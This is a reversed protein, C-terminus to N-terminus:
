PRSRRKRGRRSKSRLDLPEDVGEEGGEARMSAAPAAKEEKKKLLHAIMAALRQKQKEGEGGGKGQDVYCSIAPLLDEKRERRPLCGIACDERKEKRTPMYFGSGNEGKEELASVAVRIAERSKRENRGHDCLVRAVHTGKKKRHRAQRNFSSKGGGRRCTKKGRKKKKAGLDIVPLKGREEASLHNGHERGKKGREQLTSSLKPEGGRRFLHHACETITFTKKGKGRSHLLSWHSKKEGGGWV